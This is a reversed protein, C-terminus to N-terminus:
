FLRRRVERTFWDQKFWRLAEELTDHIAASHNDDETPNKSTPLLKKVPGSKRTRSLTSIFKGDRTKYLAVSVTRSDTLTSKARSSHAIRVGSFSLPSEGSRQVTHNRFNRATPSASDFDFVDCEVDVSTNSFVDIKIM